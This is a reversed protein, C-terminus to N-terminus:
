RGGRRQPTVSGDFMTSTFNGGSYFLNRGRPQQAPRRVEGAGTAPEQRAVGSGAAYRQARVKLFELSVRGEYNQPPDGMDNLIFCRIFLDDGSNSRDLHLSRGGPLQLYNKSWSSELSFAPTKLYDFAWCPVYCSTQSGGDAPPAPFTDLVAEISRSIRGVIGRYNNKGKRPMLRREGEPYTADEPLPEGTTCLPAM